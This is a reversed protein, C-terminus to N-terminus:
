SCYVKGGEDTPTRYKPEAVLFYGICVEYQDRSVLVAKQAGLDESRSDESCYPLLWPELDAM